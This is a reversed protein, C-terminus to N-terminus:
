QETQKAIQQTVIRAGAGDIRVVRTDGGIFESSQAAIIGELGKAAMSDDHPPEFHVQLRAEPHHFYIIRESIDGSIIPRISPPEVAWRFEQNASAEIKVPLDARWLHVTEDQSVEAFLVIIGREYVGVSGPDTDHPFWDAASLHAQKFLYRARDEASSLPFHCISGLSDLLKWHQGQRPGTRVVIGCYGGIAAASRRGIVLLKNASDSLVGGGPRLSRGDAALLIEGHKIYAVLLTDHTAV